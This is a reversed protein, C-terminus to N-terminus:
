SNAIKLIKDIQEQLQANYNIGYGLAINKGNPLIILGKHGNPNTKLLTNLELLQSQTTGKPVVITFDYKPANQPPQDSLSDILISLEDNRINVKGELYYARNEILKDQFQEYSKPFLVGTITGSTDELGLFAMKSNNKKTVVPRIKTLNCALKVKSDNSLKQCEAISNLKLGAFPELLKALPDESIFVGLLERELSLREKETMPPVSLFVDPPAIPIAQVGNPDEFLNFQNEDHKGSLKDMESRINDLTALIANREGFRDFAGSKILSELVRKNVKQGSVRLCFDSFSKYPGNIKREALIEEVAADGVNKIASLGFRVAGGQLSEKNDIITFQDDSENIDPPLIIIGMRRCESIALGIEDITDSKSALFATMYELPYNAKMYATKYALMGYAAAHAKNFGYGTFPQILEFIEEAKQQTLGNTVAGAIFKDKQKAMEEPVKKGIAKRFKDAETWTYGAIYISTYLCDDQYVLLGYSKDLYKKMREDLYTTKSPDRKRAIYEPISAMPGPRFLAVMAMLDEVRNPQLEKIWKTMAEGSLQFVGETQGSSLMQFTKADDIPIRRLDVTQGTRNRVNIVCNGLIALNDLGLIDLKILGVDEVAHMEYQTILKDGGTEFQIPTYKTIKQPAIVVGSAHVSIHRATDEISMASDLIKKSDPETDYIKKLEGVIDFAKKISMPFGQKGLPILKSIRDGVEYPYGLVRATDRVAGKAMMRGFTCIQAVNEKGYLEVIHHLMKQRKDDSIDMDIDPPTPRDVNLFREFPIQFVLPDVSTVGLVFSVLSGAASGRTNTICDNVSAWSILDQMILFYPAYGKSCIINLEMDLRDTIEKNLEGYYDKAMVYTKERLYEEATKGGPIPFIPFNWKGLEIEVNCKDAIKVTNEIAEPIDIFESAMQQPTKIYFDPTKYMSMRDKDAVTTQTNVMLLVDQAFADEQKLYHADNTAVVPIGLERSLKMLALNVQDLEKIGPHRQLEIYYDDKFLEQYDKLRKKATDYQDNLILQPIEGALCSSTTILGAAYKQLVEWDIRPRYYFGETFGISSLTMLNEYGQTDKALALLHNIKRESGARDLRSGATYYLECGIIPKIGVDKCKKYFEIAGYMVGHDTIALSTMGMEKAMPVLKKIKSLGDLLSYETHCHLHVFDPM